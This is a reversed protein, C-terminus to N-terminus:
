PRGGPRGKQKRNHKAGPQRLDRPRMQLRGAQFRRLLVGVEVQEGAHQLHKGIRRPQMVPQPEVALRRAEGLNPLRLFAIDVLEQRQQRRRGGADEIDATAGAGHGAPQSRQTIGDLHQRGALHLDADGPLREIAGGHHMQRPQLVESRALTELHAQEGLAVLIDREGGGEGLEALQQGGAAPHHDGIAEAALAELPAPRDAPPM